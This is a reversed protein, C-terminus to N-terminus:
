VLVRRLNGIRVRPDKLAPHKLVEVLEGHLPHHPLHVQRDETRGCMFSGWDEMRSFYIDDVDFQSALWVFRPMERFNADFVVFSLKFYTIIGMRRLWAIFGLNDLLVKWESGKRVFEYTKATAADLSVEVSKIKDRTAEPIKEWHEKNFFFGNTHIYIKKAKIEGSYLWERIHSSAFPDGSGILILEDVEGLEEIRQRLLEHRQYNRDLVLMKRCTLCSLNCTQDYAANIISPQDPLDPPEDVFPSGPEEPSSLWPCKNQDCYRYSGDLISSRFEQAKAGTWIAQGSELQLNGIPFDAWNNVCPFVDGRLAVEFMRFPISCIKAM